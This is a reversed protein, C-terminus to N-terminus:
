RRYRVVVIGPGGSGGTSPVQQGGGGGSGTNTGATGGVGGSTTTSNAGAQGNNIANTGGAGGTNGCGGGGGGQGGSGGNEGWGAGGGGGAWYYQTGTISNTRGEGGRQNRGASNPGILEANEGKTGAGGGGGVRLYGIPNDWPTTSGGPNGFSQSGPLLSAPSAANTLGVASGSSGGASGGPQGAQTAGWSGGGGGGLAQILPTLQSTQGNPGTSDGTIGPGGAGVTIANPGIGLATAGQVFGGAGGGGGHRSGGAGGGGIVLYEVELGQKVLGMVKTPMNANIPDITLASQGVSTFTHIVYGGATYVSDGGKVKLYTLPSDSNEPTPNNHKGRVSYVFPM